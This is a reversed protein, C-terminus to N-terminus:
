RAQGAAMAARLRREADADWYGCELPIFVSTYSITMSTKIVLVRFTRAAQDLMSIIEEHPKQDVAHDKFLETLRQRYASIGPADEERVFSLEQDILFRPKVHEAAALSSLVEQLVALLSENSNITEIGYRSQAPYAADSIVIWNRHGFLSLCEHFVQHWSRTPLNPIVAPPATTM